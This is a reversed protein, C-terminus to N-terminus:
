RESPAERPPDLAEGQVCRMGIKESPLGPRAQSRRLATQHELTDKWSGGRVTRTSCGGQAHPEWSDKKRLDELWCDLTWESVNGSLDHVGEPTAGKPFSGVPATKAFGDDPSGDLVSFELNMTQPAAKNGWPWTRGETGRAALAWEAESPLRWGRATCWSSALAWTMRVAPHSGTQGKTAGNWEPCGFQWWEKPCGTRYEDVTLEHGMIKFSPVEIRPGRMNGRGLRIKDGAIEVFAEDGVFAPTRPTWPTPAGAGTILGVQWDRVTAIFTGTDGPIAPGGFLVVGYIVALRGVISVLLKAKASRQRIAV